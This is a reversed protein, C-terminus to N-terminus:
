KSQEEDMYAGQLSGRTHASMEQKNEPQGDVLERDDVQGEGVSAEEDLCQAGYADQKSALM